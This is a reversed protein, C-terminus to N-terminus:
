RTLVIQGILFKEVREQFERNNRSDNFYQKMIDLVTERRM